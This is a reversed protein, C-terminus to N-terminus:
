FFSVNVSGVRLTQEFMKTAKEDADLRSKRQGVKLLNGFKEITKEKGLDDNPSTDISKVDTKCLFM